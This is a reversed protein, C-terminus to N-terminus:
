APDSWQHGCVECLWQNTPEVDELVPDPAHCKPCSGLEFEPVEQNLEELIELPIPRGAIERAADLEDAAVLVRPFERRTELWSEYGAKYLALQLARAQEATECECLVTKWTYDAEPSPEDEDDGETPSVIPAFSARRGSSLPVDESGSMWGESFVADNTAPNIPQREIAPRNEIAPRPEATPLKLGRNAIESSLAQRAVDTLDDADAALNLLEGDYLSRYHEALRLLEGHPDTQM